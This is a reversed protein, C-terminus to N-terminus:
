LLLLCKIVALRDKKEKSFEAQVSLSQLLTVFDDHTLKNIRAQVDPTMLKSLENTFSGVGASSQKQTAAVKPADKSASAATKTAVDEDAGQVDATTEDYIDDDSGPQGIADNFRPTAPQVPLTRADISYGKTKLYKALDGRAYPRQEDTIGVLYLPDVGFTLVYAVVIRMSPKGERCAREMTFKAVGASELLAHRETKNLVRWIGQLRTKTKAPNESVNGQKLAKRLDTNL